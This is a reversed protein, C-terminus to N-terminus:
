LGRYRRQLGWFAEAGPTFGGEQEAATPVKGGSRRRWREAIEPALESPHKYGARAAVSNAPNALAENESGQILSAKCPRRLAHIVRAHRHPRLKCGPRNRPAFQRAEGNASMQILQFAPLAVTISDLEHSCQRMMEDNESTMLDSRYAGSDVSAVPEVQRSYATRM